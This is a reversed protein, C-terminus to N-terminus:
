KSRWLTARALTYATLAGLTGMLIDLSTDFVYNIERPVGFLYEFVEWGAIAGIALLAYVSPVFRFVFGVLFVGIAFGGLYHIPVDFWVHEWYWFQDLAVIHLVAVAACLVLAGVFWGLRM